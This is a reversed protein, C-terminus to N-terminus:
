QFDKVYLDNLGSSGRIPFGKRPTRELRIASIRIVGLSTLFNKRGTLRCCTGGEGEGEGPFDFPKKGKGGEAKGPSDVPERRPRPKWPGGSSNPPGGPAQPPKRPAEWSAGRSARPLKLFNWSAWWLSRSVRALKWFSRFRLKGPYLSPPPV